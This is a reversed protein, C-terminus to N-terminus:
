QITEQQRADAAVKRKSHVVGRLANTAGRLYELAFEPDTRGLEALAERFAEWAAREKPSM